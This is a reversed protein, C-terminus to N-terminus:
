LCDSRNHIEVAKHSRAIDHATRGSSSVFSELGHLISDTLRIGHKALLPGVIKRLPQM